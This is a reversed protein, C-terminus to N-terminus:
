CEHCKLVSVRLRPRMFEKRNKRIKASNEGYKEALNEHINTSVSEENGIWVLHGIKHENRCGIPQDGIVFLGPFKYPLLGHALWGM